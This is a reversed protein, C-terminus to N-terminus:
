FWVQNRDKEARLADTMWQDCEPVETSQSSDATGAGMEPVESTSEDGVEKTADALELLQRRM